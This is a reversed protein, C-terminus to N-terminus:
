FQKRWKNHDLEQYHGETEGIGWGVEHIEHVVYKHRLQVFEYHDEDIINQDIGFLLVFMGIM